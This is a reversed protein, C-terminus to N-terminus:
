CVTSINRSVSRWSLWQVPSASRRFILSSFLISTKVPQQARELTSLALYITSFAPMIFEYYKCLMNLFASNGFRRPWLFVYRYNTAGKELAEIYPSKDTFITEAITHWSFFNPLDRPLEFVQPISCLNIGINCSPCCEHRVSITCVQQNLEAGNTTQIM